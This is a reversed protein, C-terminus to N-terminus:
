RITGPVVQLHRRGTQTKVPVPLDPQYRCGTFTEFFIIAIMQTNFLSVYAM